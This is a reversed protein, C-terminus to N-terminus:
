PHPLSQSIRNIGSTCIYSDTGFRLSALIYFTLLGLCAATDTADSTLGLVALIVVAVRFM